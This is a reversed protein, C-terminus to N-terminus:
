QLSWKLKHSQVGNNSQLNEIYEAFEAHGNERAIQNITRDDTTLYLDFQCINSLDKFINLQGTSALYHVLYLRRYIPKVNVTAPKQRLFQRVLEWKGREANRLLQDSAVLEEVYHLMGPCM